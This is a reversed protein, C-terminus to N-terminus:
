ERIIKEMMETALVLKPFHSPFTDKLLFLLDEAYPKNFLMKSTEIYSIHIPSPLQLLLIHTFKEMEVRAKLYAETKMLNELEDASLSFFAPYQSIMLANSGYLPVLMNAVKTDVQQLSSGAAVTQLSEKVMEDITKETEPEQTHESSRTSSIQKAAVYVGKLSERVAITLIMMYTNLQRLEAITRLIQEKESSHIQTSLNKATESPTYIVSIAGAAIQDIQSGAKNFGETGINPALINWLYGLYEPYNGLYQFYLPVAPIQLAVKVAEYVSKIFDTANEEPLPKLRLM